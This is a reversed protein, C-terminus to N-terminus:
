EKMERLRDTVRDHGYVNILRQLTDTMTDARAKHASTALETVADDEAWRALIQEHSDTCYECPECPPPEGRTLLCGDPSHCSCTCFFIEGRSM